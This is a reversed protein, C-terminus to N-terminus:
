QQAHRTREYQRRDARANLKDGLWGGLAVAAFALIVSAALVGIIVGVVLLVMLAVAM